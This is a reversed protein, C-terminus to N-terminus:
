CNRNELMKITGLFCSCCDASAEDCHLDEKFLGVGPRNACFLKSEENCEDLPVERVIKAVHANPAFDSEKWFETMWKIRNRCNRRCADEM